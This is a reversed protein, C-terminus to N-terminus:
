QIREKSRTAPCDLVINSIKHEINDIKGEFSDMRKEQRIQYSKVDRIHERITKGDRMDKGNTDTYISQLHQTQRDMKKDNRRLYVIALGSLIMAALGIVLFVSNGTIDVTTNGHTVKLEEKQNPVQTQPPAYPPYQYQYPQYQPNPQFGGTPDNYPTSPPAPPQEQYEQPPVIGQPPAIGQPATQQHQSM